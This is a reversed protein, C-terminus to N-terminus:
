PARPPPESAPPIDVPRAEPLGRPGEPGAQRLANAREIVLRKSPLSQGGDGSELVVHYRRDDKWGLPLLVETILDFPFRGYWPSDLEIQRSHTRFGPKYLTVRRIGYHAFPLDLPTTGVTQDDLRVVAGEPESTIHLVRQAACGAVSLALLAPLTTRPRSSAM